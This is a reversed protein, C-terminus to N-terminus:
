RPLPSTLLPLLNAEAPAPRNEEGVPRLSLWIIGHTEQVLALQQADEPTVALTVSRAGPQREVDDPREGRIGQGVEAAEEGGTSPAAPVPEQAEQAVGLIEINQLLTVAKIEGFDQATELNGLRSLGAPGEPFVAIVDVFNGPLLLGGVGTVESALVSFGRMGPDLVLALDKEEEIADAGVKSRTVQEGQQLPFRVPLGVALEIDSYAGSLAQDAEITTLELMDATLKTNTDINRAAVVVDAAVAVSAAGGGEDRSQLAVFLLVAAIAAFLVAAAIMLRNRGEPSTGALVRAM